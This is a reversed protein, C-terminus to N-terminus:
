GGGQDVYALELAEGTAGQVAAALREVQLRGARRGAHRPPRAPHGLTDVAAHTKGKPRKAGDDDASGGSQPISGLTRSDVVASTPEPGRGAAVRSLARLEPAM